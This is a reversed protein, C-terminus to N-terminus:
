REGQKLTQLRAPHIWCAGIDLLPYNGAVVPQPSKWQETAKHHVVSVTGGFVTDLLYAEEANSSPYQGVAGLYWVRVGPRMWGTDAAGALVPSVASLAAVLLSSSLRLKVAM